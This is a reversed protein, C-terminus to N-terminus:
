VVLVRSWCPPMIQSPNVDSQNLLHRSSNVCDHIVIGLVLYPYCVLYSIRKVSIFLYYLLYYLYKEKHLFNM